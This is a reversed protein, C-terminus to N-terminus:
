ILDVKNANKKDDYYINRCHTEKAFLSSIYGALCLGALFFMASQYMAIGSGNQNLLAGFIAPGIAAGVFGGTNVVSVAMGSYKPNCVEKGISWAMALCTVSFSFIVLLIAFLPLSLKGGLTIIVWSASALAGLVILPKKRSKIKDSIVGISINAAAQALMMYLIYKSAEITTLGYVDRVYSVGWTGAFTLFVASYLMLFLFPAIVRKNSFVGKLGERVSVKEQPAVVEERGEIEAISPLNMDQPKNRVFLFCLAAIILSIIGFGVFTTRWTFAAVLLALPTQAVIGGTNGILSTLGTMTGFEKEKFWMTQIKAVSIFTVSVGLGVLLRGAYAFAVGPALGFLISGLATVVSGVAVTIRAGLTDALIGTPIQMLAYAYFYMSGLTAFGVPTMAFEEILETKIVGVALRHLFVFFYCLVLIGYVIWRYQLVKQYQQERSLTSGKQM